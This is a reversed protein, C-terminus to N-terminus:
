GPRRHHARKRLHTWLNKTTLFFAGSERDQNSPNIAISIITRFKEKIENIESESLLDHLTQDRQKDVKTGVYKSYLMQSATSPSIQSNEEKYPLLDLFQYIQNVADETAM